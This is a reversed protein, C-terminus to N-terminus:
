KKEGLKFGDKISKDELTIRTKSLNFYKGLDTAKPKRDKIGLHGYIKQLETKIEKLTKRDGVKFRELIIIDLEDQVLDSKLYKMLEGEAYGKARCGPTGCYSYLKIYRQDPIRHKIADLIYSNDKYKDMFECFMKLKQKFIGTAYFHNDLFDSVISEDQSYKPDSEKPFDRKQLSERLILDLYQGDINQFNENKVPNNSSDIYHELGYFEIEDEKVFCKYLDSFIKHGISRFEKEEGSHNIRFIGKPFYNDRNEWLIKRLENFPKDFIEVVKPDLKYWERGIDLDLGMGRLILHIMYEDTKDGERIKILNCSINETRYSSYRSDIERAYGVKFVSCYNDNEFLHESKEVLHASKIIYLM